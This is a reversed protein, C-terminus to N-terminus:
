SIKIKFSASSYLMFRIHSVRLAVEPSRGEEGTSSQQTSDSVKVIMEWFCMALIRKPLLSGSVNRTVESVCPSLVNGRGLFENRPNRFCAASVGPLITYSSWCTVPCESSCQPPM